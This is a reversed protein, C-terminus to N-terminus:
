QSFKGHFVIEQLPTRESLALEGPQMQPDLTSPDGEYGIAFAAVAVFGEPIGLM